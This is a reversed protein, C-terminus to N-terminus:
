IQFTERRQIPVSCISSSPCLLSGLVGFDPVPPVPSSPLSSDIQLRRSAVYEPCAPIPDEPFSGLQLQYLGAGLLGSDPQSSPVSHSLPLSSFYLQTSPSAIDPTQLARPLPSSQRFLQEVQPSSCTGACLELEGIDRESGPFILFYWPFLPRANPPFLFSFFSYIYPETKCNLVCACHCSKWLLEVRNIRTTIPDNRNRLVVNLLYTQNREYM